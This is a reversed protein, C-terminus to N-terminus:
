PWSSGVGWPGSSYGSRVSRVKKLCHSIIFAEMGITSVLGIDEVKKYQMEILPTNFSCSAWLHNLQLECELSETSYQGKSPAFRM